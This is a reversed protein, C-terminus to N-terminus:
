KIQELLRDGKVLEIFLGQPTPIATAHFVADGDHFWAQNAYSNKITKNAEHLEDRLRKNEVQLAELYRTAADVIADPPANEFTGGTFCPICRGLKEIELRDEM